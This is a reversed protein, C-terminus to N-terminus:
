LDRPRKPFARPGVATAEQIPWCRPAAAMKAPLASVLRRALDDTMRDLQEGDVNIVARLAGGQV